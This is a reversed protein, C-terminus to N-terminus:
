PLCDSGAPTRWECTTGPFTERSGVRAFLTSVRVSRIMSNCSGSDLGNYILECSDYSRDPKYSEDCWSYNDPGCPEDHDRSDDPDRSDDDPDSFENPKRSDDAAGPQYPEDSKDPKYSKDSERAHFECPGPRRWM